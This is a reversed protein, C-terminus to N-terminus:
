AFVRSPMAPVVVFAETGKPLAGIFNVHFGAVPAMEEVPGYEGELIKGTPKYITGVIDLAHEHSSTIWGDREGVQVPKMVIQDEIRSLNVSVVQDWHDPDSTWNYRAADMQEEPTLEKSSIFEEFTRDTTTYQYIWQTSIEGTPQMEYIPVTGRFQSLAAIAAAEDLFKFFITTM